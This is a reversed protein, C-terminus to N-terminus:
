TPDALKKALKDVDTAAIEDASIPELVRFKEREFETTFDDHSWTGTLPDLSELGSTSDEAHSRWHSPDAGTKSPALRVARWTAREGTEELLARGARPELPEFPHKLRAFRDPCTRRAHEYERRWAAYDGCCYALRGLYIYANFDDGRLALVREFHYRARAVKGMRFWARGAMGHALGRLLRFLPRFLAKM